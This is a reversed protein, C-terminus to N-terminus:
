IDLRGDPSIVSYEFAAFNSLRGYSPLDHQNVMFPFMLEMKM